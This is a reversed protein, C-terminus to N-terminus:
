RQRCNCDTSKWDTNEWQASAHLGSFFPMIEQARNGNVWGGPTGTIRERTRESEREDVRCSFSEIRGREVCSFRVSRGVHSVAREVVAQRHRVLTPACLGRGLWRKSSQVGRALPVGRDNSGCCPRDNPRSGGVGVLLIDVFARQGRGRACRVASLETLFLFFFIGASSHGVRYRASQMYHLYTTHVPGM